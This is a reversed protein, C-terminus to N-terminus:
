AEKNKKFRERMKILHEEAKMIHQKTSQLPATHHKDQTVDKGPAKKETSAGVLNQLQDVLEQLKLSSAAIQQSASSTQLTSASLQQAGSASQEAVAAISDMTKAVQNVAASQQTLGSAVEEIKTSVQGISNVSVTIGSSVEKVVLKVEEAAKASSDALKRVEDAVVAFGRGAEGARAAEIAANLALLNTQETTETIIDVIKNIKEISEGTKQALQSALVANKTVDRGSSAMQTVAATMQSLTKSIEEAQKSQQTAGSAVQQAISANQDVASSTQQISTSLAKSLNILQEISNKIISAGSKMYFMSSIGFILALIFITYIIQQSNTLETDAAISANTGGQKEFDIYQDLTVTLNQFDTDAQVLIKHAEEKKGSRSLPLFQNQIQSVYDKWDAQYSDYFHKTDQTVGHIELDKRYNDIEKMKEDMSKEIQNMEDLDTTLGHNHVLIVYDSIYADIRGLEVARPLWTDKIESTKQDIADLARIALFGQIFILVVLLGAGMFIRKGINSNKFINISM